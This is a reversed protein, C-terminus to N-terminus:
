TEEERGTHAAAGLRLVRLLYEAALEGIGACSSERPGAVNLCEIRQERIWAVVNEPPEASTLDVIRLPKRHRRAYRRTLATGGLIRGTHLILTGDSDIVNQETRASYDVTSMEELPYRDPIPGDEALRGLPCWGGCPLGFALAADLAGRDVGTQGGSVLRKM